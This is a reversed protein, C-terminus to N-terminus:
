ASVEAGAEEANEDREGAEVECADIVANAIRCLAYYQGIGIRETIDGTECSLEECGEDVLAANGGHAALWQYRASSYDDVLGDCVEHMAERAAEADEPDHEDLSGACRMTHEYTWDDPLRGDLAEHVDRMVTSDKLWSPCGEQLRYFKEGSSDRKASEFAGAFEALVIQFTTKSM